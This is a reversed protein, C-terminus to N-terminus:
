SLFGSSMLLRAFTKELDELSKLNSYQDLPFVCGAACPVISGDQILRIGDTLLWRAAFDNIGKAFDARNPENNRTLQWWKSLFEQHRKEGGAQLVRIENRHFKSIMQEKEIMENKDKSSINESRLRLQIGEPYVNGLGCVLAKMIRIDQLYAYPEMGHLMLLNQKPTLQILNEPFAHIYFSLIKQNNKFRFYNKNRLVENEVTDTDM